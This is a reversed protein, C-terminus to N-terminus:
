RGGIMNNTTMRGILHKLLEAMDEPHEKFTNVFDDLEAEKENIEPGYSSVFYDCSSNLNPKDPFFSHLWFWQGNKNCFRLYKSYNAVYIKGPENLKPEPALEYIEEGGSDWMCFGSGDKVYIESNFAPDDKGMLGNQQEYEERTIVTRVKGSGKRVVKQGPKFKRVLEYNDYGHCWVLFEGEKAYFVEKNSLIIQNVPGHMREFDEKSAVVVVNDTAKNRIKQGVKFPCSRPPDLEDAIKKLADVNGAAERIRRAMEKNDM